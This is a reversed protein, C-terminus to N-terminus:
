GLEGAYSDNLQFTPAPQFCFSATGGSGPMLSMGPSVNLLTFTGVGEAAISEGVNLDNEPLHDGILSAKMIGGVIRVGSVSYAVDNDAGPWFLTGEKIGIRIGGTCDMPNSEKTFAPPTPSPTYLLAYLISATLLTAILTSLTLALTRRPSRPPLKM